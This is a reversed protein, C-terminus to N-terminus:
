APTLPLGVDHEMGALCFKCGANPSGPSEIVFGSKAAAVAEEPSRRGVSTEIRKAVGLDALEKAREIAATSGVAGENVRERIAEEFGDTIGIAQGRADALGDTKWVLESVGRAHVLEREIYLADKWALDHQGSAIDPGSGTPEKQAGTGDVEVL